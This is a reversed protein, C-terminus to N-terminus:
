RERDSGREIAREIEREREREKPKNPCSLSGDLVWHHSQTYTKIKRESLIKEHAGELQNETFLLSKKADLRELSTQMSSINSISLQALNEVSTFVKKAILYVLQKTSHILFHSGQQSCGWYSSLSNSQIFTEITNKVLAQIQKGFVRNKKFERDLRGKM